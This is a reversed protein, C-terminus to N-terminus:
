MSTRTVYLTGEMNILSNPDNPNEALTQFMEAVGNKKKKFM